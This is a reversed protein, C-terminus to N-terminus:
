RVVYREHNFTGSILQTNRVRVFRKIPMLWLTTYGFIKDQNRHETEHNIFKANATRIEGYKNRYQLGFFRGKSNEILRFLRERSVRM